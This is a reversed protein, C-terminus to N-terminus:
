TSFHIRYTGDAMQEAQVVTLQKIETIDSVHTGGCPIPACGEITVTRIEDLNPLREFNPATQLLAKSEEPTLYDIRVEAGNPIMTNAIEEAEKLTSLEPAKGKYGVYCPEDLWSDTTQVQKSMATALCHDLLHAATHRRMLLYRYSWDLECTVPEQSVTGSVIKGWHIVKGDHFIAKKLTIEFEPSRIIGRDSPQGGGKPHFITRDLVLYAHTRKEPVLKIIQADLHKQNTEHLYVLETKPLGDTLNDLNM